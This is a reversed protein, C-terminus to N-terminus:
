CSRAKKVILPITANSRFQTTSSPLVSNRLQMLEDRYEKLADLTVEGYRFNRAFNGSGVRLELLRKGAILQAIATNVSSLATEIESLTM